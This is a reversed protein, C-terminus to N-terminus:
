DKEFYKVKLDDVYVSDTSPWWAFVRFEDNNTIDFPLIFEVERYKWGLSDKEPLNKEFWSNVGRSSQQFDLYVNYGYCRYSVFLKENKLGKFIKLTFGYPNLNCIKLSRPGTFVKEDTVFPGAPKAFSALTDQDKIIFKYTNTDNFNEKFSYNFNWKIHSYNNFSYSSTVIFYITLVGSFICFVIVGKSVTEKLSLNTKLKILNFLMIFFLPFVPIFYRGIMPYASEEGVLDWSLYQSLMILVFVIFIILGIYCRQLISFHPVLINDPDFLLLFFIILYAFYVFWNPPCFHFWGLIGIYSKSMYKFNSFFSKVFVKITHKPHDKIFEIQKNIDCGKNLATNDRYNVNYESYPIYKSDIISKQLYATGLGVFIALSLIGIKFKTTKFKVSPILFLLFLIPLYVLKALGILVSFILIILIQKYSIKQISENFSFCLIIAIILYSLSNVLVDASLSSHVVLSGPLTALFVFLWKNVPIIRIAFYISVIFILLNSLRGFYLLWLPNAGLHKGIFIGTAQPIYLFGSYLATNTFDLFITDFPQLPISSTHLLQKPSTKNYNNLIYPHYALFLKQFSRPCYGGLRQNQRISSFTGTSVQWARYFHCVEDQPQFPPTLVTILIGFVISIYLFAKHPSLKM